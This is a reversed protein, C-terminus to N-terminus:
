SSGFLLSLVVVIGDKSIHGALVWTGDHDYAGAVGERSQRRAQEGVLLKQERARPRGCSQGEGSGTELSGSSERPRVWNIPVTRPFGHTELAAPREVNRCRRAGPKMAERESPQAEIPTQYLAEAKSYGSRSVFDSCMWRAKSMTVPVRGHRRCLDVEQCVPAQYTNPRGAWIGSM